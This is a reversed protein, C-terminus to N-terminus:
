QFPSTEPNRSFIMLYNLRRRSGQDGSRCNSGPLRERETGVV